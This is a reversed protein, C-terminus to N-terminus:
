FIVSETMFCLTKTLLTGLSNEVDERGDVLFWLDLLKQPNMKAMVASEISDAEKTEFINLFRRKFEVSLCRVVEAADWDSKTTFIQPFINL